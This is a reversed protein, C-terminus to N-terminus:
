ILNVAKRQKNLSIFRRAVADALANVDQGASGYVNITVPQSAGVLEQLKNIGMVIEAGHGDGFGKLGYATPMVTPRPFMIANEYAKKYWDVNLSPLSSIGLFQALSSDVPQQTIRFHPLAIHPLHWEFNFIGKIRDVTNTIVSRIEDFRARVSDKLAQIKDLVGNKIADWVGLVKSKIGEVVNTVTTKINNWTNTVGSKIATVVNQISTKINNWLQIAKEKTTEIANTVGDKIANWANIAFEKIEDWHKYLLVGIAIIAAIAITLPGGLVGVITGIVSVLSGIMTIIKGGILLVPAIAAVIGLIKVIQEAQEPSLNRIKETITGIIGAVKELVPAFTEALTAGLTAMSGTVNGKLRDITDNVENLSDLTEGDLIIGLDEAEKGYQKLAAGGDDVIGALSDASKGFIEMAKQDRETENEIKSLAELCDYFVDMADRTSGDVNTTSVGLEALAKNDEKIKPKLKKLAGTIDEVSVDVLEAAYQMKQLEDTSIGTQQSLTKLEDASQVTKYALGGLATLAGAAAGSLPALKQGVETVKGGFDKMAQGVAKIQQSAVSGFERHQKELLKLNQETAIIERQLDDWEQTGKAVQSQADKLEQLRTNTTSIAESLNKQKQRLLETNAPDLKLLKNIDKLNNQTTKLQSDVDKLSKQLKTTEGDIEITIGKIRNAM